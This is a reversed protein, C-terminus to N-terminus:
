KKLWYGLGTGVAGFAWKQEADGYGKSLIVYLAAGVVLLSVFIRVYANLRDLRAAAEALEAKRAAPTLAPIDSGPGISHLVAPLVVDSASLLLPWLRRFYGLLAMGVIGSAIVIWPWFHM